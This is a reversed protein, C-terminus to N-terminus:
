RLKLIWGVEKLPNEKIIPNILLKERKIAVRLGIGIISNM